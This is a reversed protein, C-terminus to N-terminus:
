LGFHWFFLNEKWLSVILPPELGCHRAARGWPSGIIPTYPLQLAGACLRQDPPRPPSPSVGRFSFCKKTKLRTISAAFIGV